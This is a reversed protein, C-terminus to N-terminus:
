SAVALERQEPLFEGPRLELRGVDALWVALGLPRLLKAVADRRAHGMGGGGRFLRAVDDFIPHAVTEFRLAGARQAPPDAAFTALRDYKWWVYDHRDARHVIRMRREGPLGVLRADGLLSGLIVQFQVADPPLRRLVSRPDAAVHVHDAGAQPTGSPRGPGPGEPM